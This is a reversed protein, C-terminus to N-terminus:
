LRPTNIDTQEYYLRGSTGHDPQNKFYGAPRHITLLDFERM